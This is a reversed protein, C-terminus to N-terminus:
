ESDGVITLDIVDLAVGKSSAGPHGEERAEFLPPRSLPADWAKGDVRTLNVPNVPNKVKKEGKPGTDKESQRSMYGIGARGGYSKVRVFPSPPLLESKFSM